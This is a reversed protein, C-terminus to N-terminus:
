QREGNVILAPGFSIGEKVDMSILEGKSYNGAILNGDDTLGVFENVESDAM